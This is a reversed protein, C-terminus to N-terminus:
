VRKRDTRISSAATAESVASMKLSVPRAPERSAKAWANVVSAFSVSNAPFPHGVPDPEEGVARQLLFADLEGGEATAEFAARIRERAIRRRRELDGICVH